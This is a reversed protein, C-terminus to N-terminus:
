FIQADVVASHRAGDHVPRHEGLSERDIGDDETRAGYDVRRAVIRHGHVPQAPASL